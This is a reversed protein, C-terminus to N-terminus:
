TLRRRVEAQLVDVAARRVDAAVEDYTTEGQLPRPGVFYERVAHLIADISVALAHDSLDPACEFGAVLADALLEEAPTAAAVGPLDFGLTEQVIEAKPRLSLEVPGRTLGDLIRPLDAHDTVFAAVRRKLPAGGRGRGPTRGALAVAERRARRACVVEAAVVADDALQEPSSAGAAEAVAATLAMFEARTSASLKHLKQAQRRRFTRYADLVKDRLGPDTVCVPDLVPWTEMQNTTVYRVGECGIEATMYLSALAGFACALSAAVLEEDEASKGVLRVLQFNNKAIFPENSWWVQHEFSPHLQVAIRTSRWHVHWWNAGRAAVSPKEHVKLQRLHKIYTALSGGQPVKEPANLVWKRSGNGAFEGTREDRPGSLLPLLYNKNLRLQMGHGHLDRTVGPTKPSRDDFEYADHGLKNGYKIDAGPVRALASVHTLAEFDRLVQPKTGAILLDESDASGSLDSVEVDNHPAPVGDVDTLDGGINARINVFHVTGLVATSVTKPRALLVFTAVRADSFWVDAETHWIVLDYSRRLWARFSALNDNQLVGVPLVLGFRGEPKLLASTLLVFWAALNGGNMGMPIASQGGLAYLGSQAKASDPPKEDYPPNGVVRDLGDVPWTVVVTTGDDAEVKIVADGLRIDFADGVRVAPYNAGRYIDRTALNVAALHTAFADLDNGLLHTLAQAHDSGLSILVAYLEVLFTGAGSSIDACILDPDDVAWKCISRAVRPQTYHQGMDRRREPSILREFITGIVESTVSAFNLQEVFNLLDKLHDLSPGTAGKLLWTAAPSLGFITEYDGSAKRAATLSRDVRDLLLTGTAPNTGGLMAKLSFHDRINRYFLAATLVEAVGQAVLYRADQESTKIKLNIASAQDVIAQPLTGAERSALLMPLVEGILRDTTRAFVLLAVENLNVGIAPTALAVKLREFFATLGPELHADRQAEPLNKWWDGTTALEEPVLRIIDGQVRDLHSKANDEADLVAVEFFTTTFAVKVGLIRAKTLVDAVVSGVLPHVGEPQDPRKAEGGALAQSDSDRRITVDPRKRTGAAVSEVEWRIVEGLVRSGVREAANKLDALFGQETRGPPPVGPM